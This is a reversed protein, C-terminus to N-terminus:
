SPSACQRVEYVENLNGCEISLSFVEGDEVKTPSGDEGISEHDGCSSGRNM